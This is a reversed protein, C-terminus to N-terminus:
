GGAVTNALVSGETNALVPIISLAVSEYVAEHRLHIRYITKIFWQAWM